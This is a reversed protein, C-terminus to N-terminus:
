RRRRRGLQARLFRDLAEEGQARLRAAREKRLALPLQPM